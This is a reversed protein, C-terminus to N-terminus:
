GTPVPVLVDESAYAWTAWGMRPRGGGAQGAGSGYLHRVRDVAQLRAEGGRQLQQQVAHEIGRELRGLHLVLLRPQGHQQAALVNVGREHCLHAPCLWYFTNLCEAHVVSAPM